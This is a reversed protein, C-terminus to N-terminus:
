QLIFQFFFKILMPFYEIFFDFIKLSKIKPMSIILPDSWQSEKEYTDRAKVKIEYNGDENWVHSINCEKGSTFPGQWESETGDGWDFLYYIEDGDPDMTSTTYYYTKGTKGNSEGMPKNPKYPPLSEQEFLEPISYSHYGLKMEESLNFIKVRDYNHDHYLYIIGNKLDYVTSYLTPYAGEQHVADLVSACFDVTLDGIPNNEFIELATNYRWSPYPPNPHQSLYFNTAVQYYESKNHIIDGEVVMSNGYKDGILIQGYEFGQGILNYQKFINYAEDCTECTNFIYDVIDGNFRPKNTQDMIEQYPTALGDWFLGKENMGGQRKYIGTYGVIVKGYNNVTPPYFYIYTDPDNYDENNGGFAYTDNSAHFVTCSLVIPNFIILISIIIITKKFIKKM